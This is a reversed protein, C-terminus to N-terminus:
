KEIFFIVTQHATNDNYEAAAAITHLPRIVGTVQDFEEAGGDNVIVATRVNDLIGNMDLYMMPTMNDSFADLVTKFSDSERLTNGGDIPLNAVTDSSLSFLLYNRGVGYTFMATADFEGTFDYLTFGNVERQNIQAIPGNQPDTLSSNLTTINSAIVEEDTVGLFLVIDIPLGLQEALLGSNSPVVTMAFEGSLYPLLDTDPNIGFDRAFLAMSEDYAAADGTQEIILDRYQEWDFASKGGAYFLTDDPLYGLTSSEKIDANLNMGVADALQEPDYTSVSDFQVGPEIFTVSMAMGGMGEQLQTLATSSTLLGMTSQMDEIMSILQTGDMYITMFRESPLQSVATDFDAMDALSDGKQADISQQIVATNAGIIVVDDSRALAFGPQYQAEPLVTITVD